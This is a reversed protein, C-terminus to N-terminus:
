PTYFRWQIDVPLLLIGAVILIMSIVIVLLGNRWRASDSLSRRRWGHHANAVIVAITQVTLHEWFHRQNFGTISGWTILLILGFLWQLSLVSSYINLLTNARKDWARNRILGLIFMILAVIAIVLFVWRTWSHLVRAIVMVNEM